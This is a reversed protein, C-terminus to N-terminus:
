PVEHRVEVTSAGTGEPLPIIVAGGEERWWGPGEAVNAGDVLVAQPTFSLGRLELRVERREPVFSGEREELRVVTSRGSRECAVRRRAYEGERYGYGDGADEYLTTAGADGEAPYLLFTLPDAPEEGVHNM